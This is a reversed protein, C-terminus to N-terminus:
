SLCYSSQQQLHFLPHKHLQHLLPAAVPLCASGIGNTRACVATRLLAVLGHLTLAPLATAVLAPLAEVNLM